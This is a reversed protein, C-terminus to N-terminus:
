EDKKVRERFDNLLKKAKDIQKRPTKQTEKMFRSLIVFGSGDWAAFLFRDRLPRLEWIDGDLHKVYPEGAMTGHKQLIGMYDQIKHLKVRSSKDAKRALERIYELPESNGDKNRYFRIQYM